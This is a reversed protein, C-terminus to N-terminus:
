QTALGRSKFAGNMASHKGIANRLNCALERREAPTLFRGLELAESRSRLVVHPGYWAVRPHRLEVIAWATQLISRRNVRHRQHTVEIQDPGVVIWEAVWCREWARILTWVVLIIQIVAIALIPWYGQWALLGALGLTVFTLALLLILLGGADLSFNGRAMIRVKAGDSSHGAVVMLYRAAQDPVLDGLQWNYRRKRAPLLTHGAM